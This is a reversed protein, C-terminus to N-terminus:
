EFNKYHELTGNNGDLGAPKVNEHHNPEEWLKRM